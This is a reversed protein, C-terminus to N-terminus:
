KGKNPLSIIFTTGEGTKTEVILGGGHGKTIIDYSLSLGLGTGEGAPKTTFFPQFIKDKIEEPIGPGNDGVSIEIHDGLNNTSVTVTPKYTKDETALARSSVAHFANNILNLLVRGIDQPVVILKPITEDPELKFDANFSKDKARLGHYALRLYENALKNLDTPEKQGSSTRSHQLMGKVIGDARKGHHSIKEENQELDGAIAKIEELDGKEIEEKLEAILERNVESFNNVFNLPNQIEHAIGATLEGLSAMKEAHILHAQAAKLDVLTKELITNAKQKQRASRYLIFAVILIFVLGSLLSYLRIRNQTQLKEKELEELRLQENFTLNQYQTLNRIRAKSISDRSDFALQLYKLTSDHQLRLKYARYLLEYAISINIDKVPNGHLNKFGNMFASAYFLSSDKNEAALYVKALGMQCTVLQSLSKQRAALGRGKQYYYRASDSNGQLFFVDGVYKYMTPRYTMHNAAIAKKEYYLASDLMNIDLYVAGINMLASNHSTPLAKDLYQLCIRFQQIAEEHNGTSRMVHGLDHHLGALIQMRYRYPDADAPKSWTQKESAPDEALKFGEIYCKLAEGYRDEKNLYYGKTDLCAAVDLTINNKRALKLAEENFEFTKRRDRNFYYLALKQNISFRVSDNLADDLLMLLSDPYASQAPVFQSLFIICIIFLWRM